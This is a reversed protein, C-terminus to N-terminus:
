LGLVVFLLLTIGNWLKRALYRPGFPQNSRSRLWDEGGAGYSHRGDRRLGGDCVRTAARLRLWKSPRYSNLPRDLGTAYAICVQRDRRRRHRSCNDSRTRM